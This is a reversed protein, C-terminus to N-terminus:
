DGVANVVLHCKAAIGDLLEASAPWSAGGTSPLKERRIVEKFKFRQSLREEIRRLLLDGNPKRNWLFGIVKGDLDDLYSAVRKEAVRPMSTPDLVEIYDTTM